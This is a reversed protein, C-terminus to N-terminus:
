FGPRVFVRFAGKELHLHKYIPNLHQLAPQDTDSWRGRAPNRYTQFQPDQEMMPIHESKTRPRIHYNPNPKEKTPWMDPYLPPLSISTLNSLLPNTMHVAEKRHFIDGQDQFLTRWKM